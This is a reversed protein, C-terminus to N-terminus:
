LTARKFSRAHASRSTRKKEVHCWMRQMRVQTGVIIQEM